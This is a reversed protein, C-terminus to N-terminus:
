TWCAERIRWACEVCADRMGCACGLCIKGQGPTKTEPSPLPTPSPCADAMGSADSPWADPIGTVM